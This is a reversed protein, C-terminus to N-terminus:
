QRIRWRDAIWDRRLHWHQRMRNGQVRAPGNLRVPQEGATALYGQGAVVKSDVVQTHALQDGQRIGLPDTIVRYAEYGLVLGSGIAMATWGAQSDLALLGVLSMPYNRLASRRAGIGKRTPLHVVKLGMLKKGPSQGGFLGDAVLLYFAGAVAGAQRSLAILGGCVMLDFLRALLRPFLDAKPYPSGEEDRQAPARKAPPGVTLTAGLPPSSPEVILGPPEM